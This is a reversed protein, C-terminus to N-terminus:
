EGIRKAMLFRAIELDTPTDIEIESYEEEQSALFVKGPLRHKELRFNKCRTVYFAGNEIFFEEQIDQRRPRNRPDYNISFSRKREYTKTWFFRHTKSVSVASQYEGSQVAEIGERLAKVSIFPSTCQVTVVIDDNELEMVELFEAIVSETSATDSATKSDRVTIFPRDHRCMESFIHDIIKQSDTSVWIKDVINEKQLPLVRRVTNEILSVMKGGEKYLWQINKDPIGKSGGRAPILVVVRPGREVM